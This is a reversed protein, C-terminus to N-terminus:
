LYSLIINAEGATSGGPDFYANITVDSGGDYVYDSHDTHYDGAVTLDHLSDDMLRAPDGSDGVTLTPSGDFPTIVDVTVLTVRSNNSITGIPLTGTDSFTVTLFITDADVTASDETSLIIWVTGDWLYQAWEGNGKDQVFAQDGALTNLADREAIDAVVTMQATRVPVLGEEVYLAAAKEGNEASFIGYDELPTGSVNRLEIARADTAELYLYKDTSASTSLPIGSGSTPGAFYNSNPDGTLNAITIPGGVINRLRLTNPAPTDAVIDTNGAIAMDRNIATAMDEEVAINLGTEVFGVTDINFTVLDGNITSTPNNSIYLGPQGYALSSYVTQVETEVTKEFASVGTAPSEASILTATDAITGTGVTIEEGNVTFKDGTTSTSNYATGFVETKTNNKLKVYIIKNSADSLTLQGPSNDDVYIIDSVDGILSDFDHVITQIPSIYFDDPTPGIHTVTGIIQKNTSSSKVFQNNSPDAAVIDGVVFSHGSQTLKYDFQSNFTQFRSSVNPYFLTSVGIGGLPDLKPMGEDNLEFIIAQGVGIAGNGSVAADKFTNYRLIDEAIIKVYTRTKSEISTVQLANGTTASAIWDGVRLDLGSYEFPERSLHSSHRQVTVSLELEWRYNRPSVGGSWWRDDTGLQYPWTEIGTQKTVSVAIVRNPLNQAM